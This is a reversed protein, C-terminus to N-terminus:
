TESDEGKKRQDQLFSKAVDRQEDDLSFLDESGRVPTRKLFGREVLIEMARKTEQVTRHVTLELLRWRAVGEITESVNRNALFFGLVDMALKEDDESDEPRFAVLVAVPELKAVSNGFAM